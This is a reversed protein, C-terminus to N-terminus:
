IDADTEGEPEKPITGRGKCKPCEVEEVTPTINNYPCISEYWGTGLFGFLTAMVGIALLCGVIAVPREHADIWDNIGALKDVTFVVGVLIGFVSAVILVLLLALIISGFIKGRECIWWKIQTTFKDM